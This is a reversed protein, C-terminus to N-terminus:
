KHSNKFRRWLRPKHGNFSLYVAMAGGSNIAVTIVAPKM